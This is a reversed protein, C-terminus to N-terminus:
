GQVRRRRLLGQNEKNWTLCLRCVKVVKSEGVMSFMMLRSGCKAV